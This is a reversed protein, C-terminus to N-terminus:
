CNGSGWSALMIALDDAGAVGNGDLDGNGGTGWSGLLVSLDAPGVSGDANLDAVCPPRFLWVGRDTSSETRSALHNACTFGVLADQDFRVMPARVFGKVGSGTAITSTWGELGSTLDANTTSNFWQFVAGAAAASSSCEPLGVGAGLEALLEQVQAHTAWVWGTINQNNITGTCPTVGDTPCKSAVFNWTAGCTTDLQRWQRGQEDVYAVASWQAFSSTTAVASALAAAVIRVSRFSQM